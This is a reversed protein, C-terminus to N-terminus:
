WRVLPLPTRGRYVSTGEGSSRQRLRGLQSRGGGCEAEKENASLEMGDEFFGVQIACREESGCIQKRVALNEFSNEM